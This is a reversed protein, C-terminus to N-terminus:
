PTGPAPHRLLRAFLEVNEHRTLLASLLQPVYGILRRAADAPERRQYWVGHGHGQDAQAQTTLM